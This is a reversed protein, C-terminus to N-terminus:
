NLFNIKKEMKLPLVRQISFISFFKTIRIEIKGGKFGEKPYIYAIKREIFGFLPNISTFIFFFTDLKEGWKKDSGFSRM